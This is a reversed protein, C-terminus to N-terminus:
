ICDDFDIGEWIDCRDEFNLAVAGIGIRYGSERFNVRPSSDSTLDFDSTVQSKKGKRKVFGINFNAQWYGADVLLSAILALLGLSFLM